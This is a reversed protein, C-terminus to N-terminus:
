SKETNIQECAVVNDQNQRPYSTCHQTNFEAQSHHLYCVSTKTTALNYKGSVLSKKQTENESLSFICLFPQSVPSVFQGFPYEVGHFKIGLTYVPLIVQFPSHDLNLSQTQCQDAPSSCNYQAYNPKEQTKNKGM